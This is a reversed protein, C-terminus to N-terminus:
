GVGIFDWVETAADRKPKDECIDMASDETENSEMETKAKKSNLATDSHSPAAHAGSSTRKRPNNWEAVGSAQTYSPDACHRKNHAQLPMGYGVATSALRKEGANAPPQNESQVFSGNWMAPTQHQGLM